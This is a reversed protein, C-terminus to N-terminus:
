KGEKKMKEVIKNAKIAWYEISDLKVKLKDYDEEYRSDASLQEINAICEQLKQEM